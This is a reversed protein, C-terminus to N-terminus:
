IHVKWQSNLRASLTKIQRSLCLRHSFHSYLSINRSTPFPVSFGLAMQIVVNSLNLQGSSSISNQFKLICSNEIDKIGKAYATRPTLSPGFKEEWPQQLGLPVGGSKSDGAQPDCETSEQPPGAAQIPVTHAGFLVTGATHWLGLEPGWQGTSVSHFVKGM